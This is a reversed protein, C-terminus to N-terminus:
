VCHFAEVPPAKRMKGEAKGSDEPTFTSACFRDPSTAKKSEGRGGPM